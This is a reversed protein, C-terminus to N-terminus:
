YNIGRQYLQELIDLELQPTEFDNKWAGDYEQYQYIGSQLPSCFRQEWDNDYEAKDGYGIFNFIVNQRVTNTPAIGMDAYEDKLTLLIEIDKRCYTLRYKGDVKGYKMHVVDMTRKGTDKSIRNRLIIKPIRNHKYDLYKIRAEVIAFDSQNIILSVECKNSTRNREIYEVRYYTVGKDDQVETLSMKPLHVTDGLNFDKYFRVIDCYVEHGYWSFLLMYHPDPLIRKAMSTDTVAANYHKIIFTTDIIHSLDKSIKNNQIKGYGYDLFEYKAELFEYLSDNLCRWDRFYFLTITTDTWYNSEMRRICEKVVGEATNYAVIKVPDLLKANPEMRICSDTIFQGISQEVTKYGLMSVSIKEDKSKEAPLAISFIGLTNTITGISSNKLRIHAYEIPKNTKGDIVKGKLIINQGGVYMPLLLIILIHLFNKM